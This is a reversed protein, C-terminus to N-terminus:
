RALERGHVTLAWIVAIGEGIFLIAWLPYFPLWSFAVLTGISALIM